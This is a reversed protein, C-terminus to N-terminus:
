PPMIACFNKPPLALSTMVHISLISLIPTPRSSPLLPAPVVLQSVRPAPPLCPLPRNPIKRLPKPVQEPACPYPRREISCGPRRNSETLVFLALLVVSKPNPSQHPTPRLIIRMFQSLGPAHRCQPVAIQSLFRTWRSFKPCANPLGAASTPSKPRRASPCGRGRKGIISKPTGVRRGGEGGLASTTSNTSVCRQPRQPRVPQLLELRRRPVM